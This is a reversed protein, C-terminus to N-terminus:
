VASLKRSALKAIAGVTSGIIPVPLAVVTALANSAVM